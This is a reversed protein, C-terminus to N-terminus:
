PSAVLALWLLAITVVTTQLDVLIYPRALSETWGATRRDRHLMPALAQTGLTLANLLFVVLTLAMVDQMAFVADGGVVSALGVLVVLALGAVPMAFAERPRLVGMRTAMSSVILWGFVAAMGLLWALLTAPADLGFTDMLPKLALWALFLTRYHQIGGVTSLPRPLLPGEVGGELPMLTFGIALGIFSIFAILFMALVTDYSETEVSGQDRVLTVLLVVATIAVAAQGSLLTIQRRAVDALDWPIAGPDIREHRGLWATVGATLAVIAAVLGIATM